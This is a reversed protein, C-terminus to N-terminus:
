CREIPLSGNNIKNTVAVSSSNKAQARHTLRNVWIPHTWVRSSQRKTGDMTISESEQQYYEHSPWCRVLVILELITSANCALTPLCARVRVYCLCYLLPTPCTTDMTADFARM